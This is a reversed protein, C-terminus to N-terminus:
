NKLAAEVKPQLAYPVARAKYLRPQVGPNIYFKATVGKMTELREEFVSKHKDLIPQCSASSSIPTQLYNLQSRDLKINSLWYRGLM